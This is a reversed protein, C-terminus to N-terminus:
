NFTLYMDKLNLTIQKDQPVKVFWRVSLSRGKNHGDNKELYANRIIYFDTQTSNYKRYNNSPEQVGFGLDSFATDDKWATPFQNFFLSVITPYNADNNTIETKFYHTGAKLTKSLESTTLETYEIVGNNYTGSYQKISCNESRFEIDTSYKIGVGKQSTPTFWSYSTVIINVVILLIALLSFLMTGKRSNLLSKVFRNKGSTKKDTRKM